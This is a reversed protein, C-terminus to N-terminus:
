AKGTQDMMVTRALSQCTPCPLPEAYLPTWNRGGTGKQWVLYETETIGNQYRWAVPEAVTLSEKIAPEVSKKAAVLEKIIEIYDGKFGELALEVAYSFKRRDNLEEQADALEEQAEALEREFKACREREAAAVLAAVDDDSLHDECARVEIRHWDADACRKIM